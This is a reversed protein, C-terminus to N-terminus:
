KEDGRNMTARLFVLRKLWEFSVQNWRNSVLQDFNAGLLKASSSESGTAVGFIDRAAGGFEPYFMIHTDWWRLMVDGNIMSSYPIPSELFYDNLDTKRPERPKGLVLKESLLADEEDDLDVLDEAPSANRSRLFDNQSDEKTTSPKSEKKTKAVRESSFESNQSDYAEDNEDDEVDIVAEPEVEPPRYLKAFTLMTHKWEAAAAHGLTDEILNSMQRPDLLSGLLPLPHPWQETDFIWPFKRCAKTFAECVATEYSAYPAARSNVDNCIEQIKWLLMAYLNFQPNSDDCDMELKRLIHLFQRIHKIRIWEREKIRCGKLAPILETAKNIVKRKETADRLMYYTSLWNGPEDLVIPQSYESAFGLDYCLDAWLDIHDQNARFYHSIIRLATVPHDFVTSGRNLHTYEVQISFDYWVRFPWATASLAGLFQNAIEDLTSSLSYVTYIEPAPMESPYFQKLQGVVSKSGLGDIDKDITIAFIKFRLEFNTITRYVASAIVYVLDSSPSEPICWFDLLRVHYKMTADIWHGFVEMFLISGGDTPCKFVRLSLSIKSPTEHLLYLLAQFQEDYLEYIMNEVNRTSLETPASESSSWVNAAFPFREAANAPQLDYIIHNLFRESYHLTTHHQQVPAPSHQFASKALEHSIFTSSKTHPKRRKRPPDPSPSKSLRKSSTSTSKRRPTMRDSDDSIKNRTKPETDHDMDSFSDEKPQLSVKPPSSHSTPTSSKQSHRSRKKPHAKHSRSPISPSHSPSHPIMSNNPLSGTTIPSSPQTTLPSNPLSNNEMYPKKSHVPKRVVPRKGEYKVGSNRTSRSSVTHQATIELDSTYGRNKLSASKQRPRSFYRRRTQEEDESSIINVPEDEESSSSINDKFLQEAPSHSNALHRADIPDTFIPEAAVSNENGIALSYTKSDQSGAALDDNAQAIFQNEPSGERNAYREDQSLSESRVPMHEQSSHVISGDRVEELSVVHDEEQFQDEVDGGGGVSDERDDDKLSVFLPATSTLGDFRPSPSLQASIM